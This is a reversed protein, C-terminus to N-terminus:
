MLFAKIATGIVAVVVIYAVKNILEVTRANDNVKNEVADLKESFKNMRAFNNQSQKEMSLIKEETRALSVMADALKDLKQEIRDLRGSEKKSHEELLKCFKDEESM